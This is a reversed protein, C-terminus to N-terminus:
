ATGTSEYLDIKREVAELDATVQALRALVAERHRRLLVLREAENGTGARVLDAYGHLERITMGTGRLRTLTTLWRVDAPAYTRRGSSTRAVATLMLGDREYYRLTHASLGTSAAVEAIALGSGSRADDPDVGM